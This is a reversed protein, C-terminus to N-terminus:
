QGAFQPGLITELAKRVQESGGVYLVLLRDKRYFHPADTWHV